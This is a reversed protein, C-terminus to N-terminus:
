SGVIRWEGNDQRCARGHVEEQRGNELVTQMTYDRCYRGDVQRTNYPTLVYDHGEPDQWRVPQQDPAYELASGACRRDAEDMSRGIVSGIVAGVVVGIITGVEGGDDAKNGIIGGTAGGVVAGIAERNCHGDVVGYYNDRHGHDHYHGQKKARYGHAPAWPPPEAVVDALMGLTLLMALLGTTIQRFSTKQQMAIDRDLYENQYHKHCLSARCQKLFLLMIHDSDCQFRYASQIGFYEKETGAIGAAALHRLSPGTMHMTM